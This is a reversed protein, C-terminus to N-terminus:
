DDDEDEEDEGNEYNDNNQNFVRSLEYFQEWVVRSLETCVTVMGNNERDTVAGTVAVVVGRNKSEDASYIYQAFLGYASGTHWFYAENGIFDSQSFRTALGQMYTAGDVELIHIERIAEESLIRVDRLVGGNGLMALIRAYDITSITLNGQALHLDHGLIESEEVELQDEVSRVTEHDRNYLVAINETDNMNGPVYSADIGLPKFIMERAFTDLSKGSVNECIAGLVAYGFNTYEFNTGPESRRFSGGRELLFRVSESSDRERSADFAGSDFISSTHQMLMRPTIATGPFNTNIVEYGLYVSIDTDLDILGHDVLVMACIATTLKALSALRFKTNTDVTRREEIDALGYEYTMFEGTNGDFMTLSVAVASHLSAIENLERSIDPNETKIDIIIDRLPLAPEPEPTPSPTAEIAPDPENEDNDNDPDRPREPQSSPPTVVYDPDLNRSIVFYWPAAAILIILALIVIIVGSKGDKNKM